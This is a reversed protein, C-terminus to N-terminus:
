PNTYKVNAPNFANKDIKPKSSVDVKILDIPNPKSKADPTADDDIDEKISEIGFNYMSDLKTEKLGENITDITGQIKGQEEVLSAINKIITKPLQVTQGQACGSDVLQKETLKPKNVLNKLLYLMVQTVYKYKEYLTLTFAGTKMFNEYLKLHLIEFAQCNTLRTKIKELDTADNLNLPTAEYDTTYEATTFTKNLNTFTKNSKLIDVQTFQNTMTSYSKHKQGDAIGSTYLGTTPDINNILVNTDYDDNSTKGTQGPIIKDIEGFINSMAKVVENVEQNNEGFRAKLRLVIQNIGDDFIELLDQNEPKFAEDSIPISFDLSKGDIDNPTNYTKGPKEAKTTTTKTFSKDNDDINYTDIQELYSKSPNPIKKIEIKTKGTTSNDVIAGNTDIIKEAKGPEKITIKNTVSDYQATRNSTAVPPPPPAAM